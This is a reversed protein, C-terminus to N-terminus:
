APEHKLSLKNPNQKFMSKRPKIEVHSVVKRVYSISKAHAIFRNLEAPSQALGILYVTGGETEFRYNIDMIQADFTVSALLSTDIWTDYAFNQLDSEAQLIIENFVDQIGTVEWTKAVAKARQEETEVAGIILAKANYVIVTLNTTYSLDENAWKTIIDAKLTLDDTVGQLGREEMAYTGATTGLSTLMGVPTCSTLLFGGLVLGTLRRRM